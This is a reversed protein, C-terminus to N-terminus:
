FWTAQNACISLVWLAWVSTLPGLDRFLVDCSAKKKAHTNLFRHLKNQFLLDKRWHRKGWKKSRGMPLCRATTSITQLGRWKLPETDTYNPSSHSFNEAFRFMSLMQSEGWNSFKVFNWWKKQEFILTNQSFFPRNKGASSHRNEFLPPKASFVCSIWVRKRLYLLWKVSSQLFPVNWRSCFCCQLYKKKM